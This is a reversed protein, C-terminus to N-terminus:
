APVRQDLLRQRLVRRPYIMYPYKKARRKKCRPEARGPRHPNVVLVPLPTDSPSSSLWRLADVFSIRNLPVGQRRGAELMVVRVLNYVIAYVTLEKLVGAETECHLVDMGLTTKLHAFNTEVEWREFYSTALDDAPYAQADLLTTVLTITRVLFGRRAVEYQCERVLLTIPLAAFEEATMWVPRVYPKYWEVVQDTSGLARVWRSRARGTLKRTNWRPPQPRDPTFNVVRRQSMRFVGHLGRGVLLAIHAFTGFARDGILLDGARLEPHPLTVRSMEHSCLPSIILHQLLGTGAHVLALVRAVPFGCGKAQNTPQGFARQLAPRDPMSVGTGNVLWTRHGHWLGVTDTLPRCTEILRRLLTELVALPLRSRAQCYASATFNLGTLRPLHACATNRHLIQLIFLHITTVPDLIRDRRRCGLAHCLDRLALPELRDALNDRIERLVSTLSPFM